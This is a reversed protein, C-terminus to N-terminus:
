PDAHPPEFGGPRALKSSACRAVARGHRRRVTALPQLSLERPHRGDGVIRAAEMGGLLASVAFSALKAITAIGVLGDLLRQTALVVLVAGGAFVVVAIPTAANM